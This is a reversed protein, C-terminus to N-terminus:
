DDPHPVYSGLGTPRPPTPAGRVLDKADIGTAASVAERASRVDKLLVDYEARVRALRAPGDAVTAATRDIAKWAQLETRVSQASTLISAGAEYYKGGLKGALFKVDEALERKGLAWRAEDLREEVFESSDKIGRAAADVDKLMGTLRNWARGNSQVEALRGLAKGELTFLGETALSLGREWADDVAGQVRDGWFDLERRAANMDRKLDVAEARLADLRGELEGLRGALVAVDANEAALRALRASAAEQATPPRPPPGPPPPIPQVVGRGALRDPAASAPRWNGVWPDSLAGSLEELSRANEAERAARQQQVAAARQRLREAELRQREAAAARAQADDGGGDFIASFLGQLLGGVLQVQLQQEMTLAPPAKARAVHAVAQAADRGGDDVPTPPPPVPVSVNCNGGAAACLQDFASQARAPAAAALALAAAAVRSARHVNM